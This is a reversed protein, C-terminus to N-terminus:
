HVRIICQTRAPLPPMEPSRTPLRVPGNSEPTIPNPHYAPNNLSNPETSDIAAYDANSHQGSFQPTIDMSDAPVSYYPTEDRSVAAYMPQSDVVDYSIEAYKSEVKDVAASPKFNNNVRKVTRKPKLPPTPKTHSTKDPSSLFGHPEAM